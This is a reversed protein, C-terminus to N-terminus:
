LGYVYIQPRNPYQKLPCVVNYSTPADQNDTETPSAHLLYCGAQM